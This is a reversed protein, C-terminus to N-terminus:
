LRSETAPSVTRRGAGLNRTGISFSWLRLLHPRLQGRQEPEKTGRWLGSELAVCACGAGANTREM